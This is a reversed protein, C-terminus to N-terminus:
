CGLVACVVVGQVGVICLVLCGVFVEVGCVFGVCYDFICDLIM